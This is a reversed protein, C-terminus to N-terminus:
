EFFRLKSEYSNVQSSFETSWLRLFFFFFGRKSVRDRRFGCLDLPVRYRSMARRVLLLWCVLTARTQTNLTKFGNGTSIGRACPVVRLGLPFIFRSREDDIKIKKQEITRSSIRKWQATRRRRSYFHHRQQVHAHTYVYIIKHLHHICARTKHPVRALISQSARTSRLHSFM